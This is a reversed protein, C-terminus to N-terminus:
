SWSSKSRFDKQLMKKSEMLTAVMEQKEILHEIVETRDPCERELVILMRLHEEWRAVSAVLIVKAGQRSFIQFMKTHNEGRAQRVNDEVNVSPENPALVREELEKTGVKSAESNDLYSWMRRAISQYVSTWSKSVECDM